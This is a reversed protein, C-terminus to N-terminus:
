SLRLPFHEQLIIRLNEKSRSLKEKIYLRNSPITFLVILVNYKVKNASNLLTLVDGKKMSVERPSTEKYDYIAM